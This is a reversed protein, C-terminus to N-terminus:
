SQRNDEMLEVIAAMFPDYDIAKIAVVEDVIFAVWVPQIYM